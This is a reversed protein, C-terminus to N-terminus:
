EADLDVGMDKMFDAVARVATQPTPKGDDASFKKIRARFDGDITELLQRRGEDSLRGSENTDCQEVLSNMYRSIGDSMHQSFAQREEISVQGDGDIDMVANFKRMMKMGEVMTAARFAQRQADTAQPDDAASMLTRGWQRGMDRLSSNFQDFQAQEDADLQGDGDADFQKLKFRDMFASMPDSRRMDRRMDAREQEDLQGDHNVDYREMMARRQSEMIAAMEQRQAESMGSFRDLTPRSAALGSREPWGDAIARNAADREPGALRGDKNLDFQALLRKRVDQRYADAEFWNITGNRNEDFTLMTQWRDFKRVFGDAKGQDAGFEQQNLENDVGAAQFFKNREAGADYPDLPGNCLDPVGAPASTTTAPGSSPQSAPATTQSLAASTLALVALVHAGQAIINTRQNIRTM